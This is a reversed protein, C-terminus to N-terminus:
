NNAFAKGLIRQIIGQYIATKIQASQPVNALFFIVAKCKATERCKKNLKVTLKNGSM